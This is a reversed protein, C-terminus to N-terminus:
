FVKDMNEDDVQLLNSQGNLYLVGADKSKSDAIQRQIEAIQMQNEANQREHDAKIGLYTAFIALFLIIISFAALGKIRPKKDRRKWGNM